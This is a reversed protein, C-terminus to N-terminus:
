DEETCNAFQPRSSSFSVQVNPPFAFKKWFAYARSKGVLKLWTIVKTTDAHSFVEKTSTFPPDEDVHSGVNEEGRPM